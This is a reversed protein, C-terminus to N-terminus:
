NMGAKEANVHMEYMRDAVSAAIIANLTIASPFPIMYVLKKIDDSDMALLHDLFDQIEKEDM